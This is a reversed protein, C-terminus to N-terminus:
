KGLRRGMVKLHFVCLLCCWTLAGDVVTQDRVERLDFSSDDVDVAVLGWSDM